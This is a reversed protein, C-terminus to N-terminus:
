LSDVSYTVGGLTVYGIAVTTVFASGYPDAFIPGAYRYFYDAQRSVLTGNNRLEVGVYYRSGNNYYVGRLETYACWRHTTDNVYWWLRIVEGTSHPTTLGKSGIKTYGSCVTQAANAPEPVAAVTGVGIALATLVGLLGHWRNARVIDGQWEHASAV